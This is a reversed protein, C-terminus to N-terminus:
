WYQGILYTDPQTMNTDPQTMNTDPQTMNTDPQTMNTDTYVLRTHFKERVPCDKLYPVSIANQDEIFKKTDESGPDELWRYHDTVTIGCREERINEDRRVPPFDWTASM